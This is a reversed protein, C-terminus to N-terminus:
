QQNVSECHPVHEGIVSFEEILQTSYLSSCCHELFIMTRDFIMINLQSSRTHTHKQMIQQDRVVSRGGGGCIPREMSSKAANRRMEHSNVPAKTFCVKM